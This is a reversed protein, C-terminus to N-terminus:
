SSLAQYVLQRILYRYHLRLQPCQSLFIAFLEAAPDVWFYTGLAGGWYYEGVSGPLPNRGAHTRLAFGLGFSQGMGPTPAEAEFLAETAADYAVHPGLHDATMLAVTAPALLQATTGGRGRWAGRDLLMQCFHAYDSASGFLGGGGSQWPWAVTHDAVLPRQGTAPDIQPEAMRGARAADLVFGTDAMGLPALINKALFDGLPQGSAVEVLRGLVDTSMSYDWVEGPQHALPLAALRRVMEQNSIRLDFVGAQNYADKVPSSGFLGYTLGSTHRLLDQVTMPRRQPVRAPGAGEGASVETHAFEPLYRHVPDPILVRGQEALMLAAVSTIPKTMSAIRFIADTAVFSRVADV